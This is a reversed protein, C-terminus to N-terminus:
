QQLSRGRLNFYTKVARIIGHISSKVRNRHKASGSPFATLTERDLVDGHPSFMCDLVKVEAESLTTARQGHLFLQDVARYGSEHQELVSCIIQSLTNRVCYRARMWAITDPTIEWLRVYPTLRPTSQKSITGQQFESPEMIYGKVSARIAATAYNALEPLIV